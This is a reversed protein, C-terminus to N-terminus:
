DDKSNIKQGQSKKEEKLTHSLRAWPMYSPASAVSSQGAPLRAWLYIAGESRAIGHGASGLPSLADLLVERCPEFDAGLWQEISKHNCFYNDVM